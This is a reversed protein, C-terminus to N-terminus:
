EKFDFSFLDDYRYYVTGKIIRNNEFEAVCQFWRPLESIRPDQTGVRPM